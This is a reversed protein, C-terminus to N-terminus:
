GDDSQKLQDAPLWEEILRASGDGATAYAVRGQWGGGGQRWELLLGALAQGDDGIVWCHRGATTPLLPRDPAAPAVREMSRRTREALSEGRGPQWGGAMCVAQWPNACANGVGRSRPTTRMLPLSPCGVLRAQPLSAAHPNEVDRIGSRGRISGIDFRESPEGRSFEGVLFAGLRVVALPLHSVLFRLPGGQDLFRVLRFTGNIPRVTMDSYREGVIVDSLADLDDNVTDVVVQVRGCCSRQAVHQLRSETLPVVGSNCM